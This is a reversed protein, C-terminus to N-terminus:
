IKVGGAGRDRRSRLWLEFVIVRWVQTPVWHRNLCETAVERMARGDIWGEREVITSGMLEQLTRRWQSALWEEVPIAFGQKPRSAVKSSIKRRVIERLVAKLKGGRLRVQPPLASAFEWMRHDLFPARAELGHHMTAGDLKTMFESTFHLRRHHEFVDQLLRKASEQSSEMARYPLIEGRLREGLLQREWFFPLGDHARAFAALGQTCYGLFNNARKLWGKRGAGGRAAFGTAVWSPILKAVREATWAHRFFPYGLFVDDGGDGTLLVTAKPKIARSLALLGLASSCAFPESFADVLEALQEEQSGPVVIAEFPVGLVAATEAAARTEDTDGGVAATYATVDAGLEATAWCVLASDIGGSLLIGVPVDAHLRLRVAELILRETEEVAEEFKIPRDDPSDPLRWYVRQSAEGRNWELITAPPLKHVGQYICRGDTVFGYELLELVAVGDIGGALGAIRLAEATSAFALDNDHLAYYLPKVGLRDRVLVAKGARDDWIVFAFMGRLRRVLEDIGWEEYGHVLIETDTRSRFRHGRQELERRLELFNYICGNFVVGLRGDESLMPQNGAASLDLVALRRHGLSGTAWSTLGESDPGRRALPGLMKQVIERHQIERGFSFVGAIGCM